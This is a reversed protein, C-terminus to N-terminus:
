GLCLVVFRMATASHISAPVNLIGTLISVYHKMADSCADFYTLASLVVKSPCCQVIASLGVYDAAWSPLLAVDDKAGDAKAQAM